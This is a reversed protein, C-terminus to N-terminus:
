CTREGKVSGKLSPEIPTKSSHNDTKLIYQKGSRNNVNIVVPARLNLTSKTFPSALTVISLLFVDAEHQINLSELIHDDLDVEYDPYIHYPIVVVFALSPTYLSQLLQFIYNDPLDLLIFATENEFGPLGTSFQIQKTEDVEMEGFYKTKINM